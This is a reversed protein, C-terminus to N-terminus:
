KESPTTPQSTMPAISAVPIEVAGVKGGIMDHIGLRLYHEGKAPVAIQQQFRVGEKLFQEIAAPKAYVNVPNWQRTFLQGERDYVLAVFALAVQRRGDPCEPMAIDGPNAAYALTLLRYPPKSKVSARNGEAVKDSTAGSSVVMAKFIIESPAPAGRQMAAYMVDRSPAQDMAKPDKRSTKPKPAPDDAYYGDRHGLRYNGSALRVTIKRYSGDERKDNPNYTLTYYSSGAVLVRDVAQGLDNVDIYTKGGTAKAMREMTDRDDSLQTSLQDIISSSL